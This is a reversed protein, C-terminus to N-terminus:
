VEDSTDFMLRHFEEEIPMVRWREEATRINDLHHDGNVYVVDFEQPRFSEFANRAIEALRADDITDCERWIVLVKQDGVTGHVCWASEIGHDAYGAVQLGLLYNFTEVLDVPSDVVAAGNKRVKTKYDWPKKFRDLRLLSGKAELDLMYRLYYSERTDPRALLLQQVEDSRIPELNELTDEYSELYIIKYTVLLSDHDIANGDKWEKAYAAKLMRPVIIADFHEGMEVLIFRRSGGDKRNLNLVAHGTTGSGAFSDLIVQAEAGMIEMVREVLETPKPAVFVEFGSGLAKLESSGRKNTGAFDHDWWTSPTLGERVESLFKKLMPRGKSDQGFWIRGDALWAHYREENCRWYRGPPPDFPEGTPGIIRFQGTRYYKGSSLNEPKWPGRQDNDPNGFAEIQEQTRAVRGSRYRQRDVAYCLVHDHTDSIFEATQNAVYSKQWVINAIRNTEGFVEDLVLRLRAHETDDITICISGTPAILDRMLRAIPEIMTLWSSHRYTDKYLFGDTGTNYPPDFFAMDALKASSSGLLRLASCADARCLLGTWFGDSPAAATRWIGVGGGNLSLQGVGNNVEVPAAAEGPKEGVVAWETRLVFKKKLYLKKQFDELQALWDIIKHGVGRLAKIKQLAADIQKGTRGEIDDVFLVENKVYFDLERRLFGGLDKHIFYDSANKKTYRELQWGLQSYKENTKSTAALTTAWADPVAGRIHREAEENLAGQKKGNDFARWEFWATLKAGAEDVEVPKEARLVFGRRQAAKTNDRDAEAAAIRLVLRLKPSVGTGEVDAEYTSFTETTKIYYQDANAWHLKVESGDYPIAYTDGKYRPLAVFDADQYYRGFFTALHSFVEGALDETSQIADLDAKLTKWKPVKEYQDDGYMGFEARLRHELRELEAKTAQRVETGAGLLTDVQPLLEETLFKELEARRLRLIRYLGFDLDAADFQFMERLLDALKKKAAALQPSSV